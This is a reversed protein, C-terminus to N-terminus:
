SEKRGKKAPQEMRREEDGYHERYQEIAKTLTDLLAGAYVPSTVIRTHCRPEKEAYNQGFDIVLEFATYGVQFYNAYVGKPAKPKAM